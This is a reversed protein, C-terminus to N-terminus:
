LYYFPEPKKEPIGAVRFPHFFCEDTRSCNKNAVRDVYTRSGIGFPETVLSGDNM